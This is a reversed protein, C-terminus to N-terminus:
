NLHLSFVASELAPQSIAVGFQICYIGTGATHTVGTVGASANRISGNTRIQGFQESAGPVQFTFRQDLPQGNGDTIIVSLETGPCGANGGVGNSSVIHQHVNAALDSSDLGDLQGANVSAATAPDNGSLRYMFTAMQARTVFDDPCYVTGDQCGISVGSDHVFQIGEAHPHSDEVDAFLHTAYATVPIALVALVLLVLATRTSITVKFTM